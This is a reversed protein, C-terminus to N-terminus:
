EEISNFQNLWQWEKLLMITAFLGLGVFVGAIILVPMADSFSVLSESTIENVLSEDYLDM